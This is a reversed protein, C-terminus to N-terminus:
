TGSSSDGSASRSTRDASRPPTVVTKILRDFSARNAVVGRADEQAMFEDLRGTRRAEELTLRM